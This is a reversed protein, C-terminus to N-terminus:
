FEGTYSLGRGKWGRPLPPCTSRVPLSWEISTYTLTLDLTSTDRVWSSVLLRTLVWFSSRPPLPVGPHVLVLDTSLFAVVLSHYLGSHGSVSFFLTPVGTSTGERRGVEVRGLVPGVVPSVKSSNSGAVVCHYRRLFGKGIFLGWPGLKGGM